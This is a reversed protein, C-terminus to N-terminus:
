YFDRWTLHLFSALTSPDYIAGGGSEKGLSYVHRLPFFTTYLINWWNKLKCTSKAIYKRRITINWVFFAFFLLNRPGRYSLQVPAESSVTAFVAQLISIVFRFYAYKLLFLNLVWLIHSFHAYNVSGLSFNLKWCFFHQM